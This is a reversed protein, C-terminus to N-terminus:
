MVGLAYLCIMAIRSQKQRGATAWMSRSFLPLTFIAIDIAMNCAGHVLYTAVFTSTDLSGYGYRHASTDDFNWDASVPACPVWAIISYILGWTATVVIMGRIALRVLRLPRQAGPGGGQEPHDNLLRLYQFLLSLKIATMAMNYTANCWWFMKIFKKMGDVGLLVFHTGLGVNVM